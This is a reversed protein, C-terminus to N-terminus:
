ILSQIFGQKRVTTSDRMSNSYYVLFDWMIAGMIGLRSMNPPPDAPRIHTLFLLQQNPQCVLRFSPPFLPGRNRFALPSPSPPSFVSSFPSHCALHSPFLPKWMCRDTRQTGTCLWVYFTRLVQLTRYVLVAVYMYYYQVYYFISIGKLVRRGGVPTHIEYYRHM